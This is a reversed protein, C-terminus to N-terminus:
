AWPARQFGVDSAEDSSKIWEVFRCWFEIGSMGSCPLSALDARNNRVGHLRNARRKAYSM